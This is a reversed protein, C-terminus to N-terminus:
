SFSTRVDGTATATLSQFRTTRGIKKSVTVDYTEGPRHDGSEPAIGTRMAVWGTYHCLNPSTDKFANFNSLLNLHQKVNRLSATEELLDWNAGFTKPTFVKTNMGCGWFWTGFRTPMPKGDALANGNGNLFVDLLPLAVTIAGGNLMGRLVRRRSLRDM